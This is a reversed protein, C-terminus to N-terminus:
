KRDWPPVSISATAGTSPRSCWRCPPPAAAASSSATSRCATRTRGNQISRRASHPRRPSAPTPTPASAAAIRTDLGPRDLRHRPRATRRGHRGVLRRRRRHPRRQHLHLKRHDIGHGAPQHGHRHRSGRRLLRNGPQHRPTQRGRAALALRHRRRRHHNELRRGSLVEAPHAHRPQNQRLRVPLRRLSLNERGEPKGRRRHAHARGDMTNAPSTRPSACPSASRASCRTAVTVPVTPCSRAPKRSISSTNTRTAHGRFMPRAPNSRRAWRTSAPFSTASAM